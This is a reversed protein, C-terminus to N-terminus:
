HTTPSQLSDSTAADIIQTRIAAPHTLKMNLQGRSGYIWGRVELQEGIWATSPRPIFAALASKPIMLAVRNDLYLWHTKLTERYRSVRGHTLHFGKDRLKLNGAKKSAYNDVSWIGKNHRRAQDEAARLCDASQTNKGVAVMWGLGDAILLEAISRGDPLYIHALQRHHRDKPEQGPQLLAINGAIFLLKRLKDRATIALPQNQRGERGIEPTNIGILRVRSGNKLTLTDGDYVHRIQIKQVNSSTPVSCDAVAELACCLLLATGAMISQLSVFFAGDAPAKQRGQQNLM